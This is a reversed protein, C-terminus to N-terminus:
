RSRLREAAQYSGRRLPISMGGTAELLDHLRARMREIQEQYAPVHVLNRRELPTPRSIM